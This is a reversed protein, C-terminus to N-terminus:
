AGWPWAPRLGLQREALTTEVGDGITLGKTGSIPDLVMAADGLRAIAEIATTAVELSTNWSFSYCGEATATRPWLGAAM